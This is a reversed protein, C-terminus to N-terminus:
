EMELENFKPLLKDKESIIPSEINWPIGLSDWRIGGDSESNYINSMKYSVITEEELVAYGHAFGTPIYALNHKEADLYFCHYQGYTPSGERLDVAVDLIAGKICYVLKAQQFPPRQFHMGRIVNKKSTVVLDEKFEDLIGLERLAPLYFPKVLVGRSDKFIKPLLEICGELPTKILQYMNGGISKDANM